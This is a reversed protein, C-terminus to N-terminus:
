VGPPELPPSATATAVPMAGSPRPLSPAPESRQGAWHQPTV